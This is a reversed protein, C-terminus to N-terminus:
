VGAHRGRGISRSLALTLTKRWGGDEMGWGRGRGDEMGWGRRGLGGEGVVEVEGGGHGGPVGVVEEGVEGVVRAGGPGLEDGCSEDFGAGAEPAPLRAAVEFFVVLVGAEGERFAEAAGEGVAGLVGAAGLDEERAQGSFDFAEEVGGAVADAGDGGEGDVVGLVVESGQRVEEVVEEGRGGGPVEDVVEAGVGQASLVDGEFFL